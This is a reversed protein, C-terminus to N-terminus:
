PSLRFTTAPHWVSMEQGILLPNMPGATAVLPRLDRAEAPVDFVLRADYSEGPVLARSLPHREGAAPGLAREGSASLPFRGGAADEIVLLRPNPVLPAMGRHSSITASDFRVRLTVIYFRGQATAQHPPTGLTASTAVGTVAYALHCDVECLHKEQGRELVRAASMLSNGILLVAYLALGALELAAVRRAVDARRCVLATAVAVAAAGSGGILSLFALVGLPTLGDTIM